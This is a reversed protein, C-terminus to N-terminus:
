QGPKAVLRFTCFDEVPNTDIRVAVNLTTWPRTGRRVVGTFSGIGATGEAADSLVQLSPGYVPNNYTGYQNIQGTSGIFEIFSTDTPPRIALSVQNNTVDCIAMAKFDDTALLVIEGATDTLQQSLTIDPVPPVVPQPTAAPALDALGITGQAIDAGTVAGDQLEAGTVTGDKVKAGTVANNKLQKTGVSNRALGAAYSTSGTALVLALIAVLLAPSPRHFTKVPRGYTPVAAEAM